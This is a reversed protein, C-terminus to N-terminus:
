IYGEPHQMYIKEDLTGHVLITKVDLQELEINFQAVLTLVIRIFKHKM